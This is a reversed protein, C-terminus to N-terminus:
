ELLAIKKPHNQIQVRQSVLPYESGGYYVHVVLHAHLTFSCRGKAHFGLATLFTYICVTSGYLGVAIISAEMWLAVMVASM